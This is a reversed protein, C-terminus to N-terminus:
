PMRKVSAKYKSPSLHHVKKFARAFSKSDLYGVAYAVETVKEELLLQKAALTMRYNLLFNYPSTGM